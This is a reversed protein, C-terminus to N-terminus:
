CGRCGAQLDKRLGLGGHRHPDQAGHCADVPRFPPSNSAVRLCVGSWEGCWPGGVMATRIEPATIASFRARLVQQQGGAGATGRRAMHPLVNDMVEFCINEGERDCDLWLVLVDTGRAERQLHDCVHAQPYPPHGHPGLLWKCCEKKLGPPASPGQCSSQYYHLFAVYYTRNNQLIPLRGKGWRWM